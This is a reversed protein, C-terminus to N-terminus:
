ADVDGTLALHFKDPTGPLPSESPQVCCLAWLGENAATTNFRLLNGSVWGAGWGALPITFYPQGTAPNIPAIESTISLGTAIQGVTEGIVNVVTAATFQIRWRETIAGDNTVVFPYVTDNFQPTIESGILSDSWVSTWAQQSFPDTYAAQQDGLPALTSVRTAGAPFANRLPHDLEIQNQDMDVSIVVAEEMISHWASLPQAYASVDLPTAMTVVGNILDATYLATPLRLGGNDELWIEDVQDRSLTYQAGATVPNPLVDALPHHLRVGDGPRAIPFARNKPIRLWDVSDSFAPTIASPATYRYLAQLSATTVTNTFTLTVTGAPYDVTGTVGTGTIAGASDDAGSAPSGSVSELAQATLFGPTLDPPLPLTFDTGTAQTDYEWLINGLASLTQYRVQISARRLDTAFTLALAGTGYNITGTIDTGSIVGSGNDSASRTAADPDTQGTVTLSGPVIAGDAVSLTVSYSSVPAYDDGLVRTLTTLSTYTLRISNSYVLETFTLSATQDLSIAGSMDTGSIVGGADTTGYIMAGDSVRKAAVTLSEVSSIHAVSLSATLTTATAAGQGQVLRTALSNASLTLTSLDMAAGFSVDVEGAGYDVTGTVNTTALGGVGDDTATRYAGGSSETARLTVSGAVIAAGFRVAIATTTTVSPTPTHTRGVLRMPSAPLLATISTGTVTFQSPNTAGSLTFWANGQPYRVTIDALDPMPDLTASQWRSNVPAVALTVPTAETSGQYSGEFIQMLTPAIPVDLADVTIRYDDQAAPITLTTVGYVGYQMAIERTTYIQTPTVYDTADDYGGQFTVVLVPAISLSVQYFWNTGNNVMQYAAETIRVYQQTAGDELCLIADVPFHQRCYTYFSQYPTIAATQDSFGYLTLYADGAYYTQYLRFNTNLNKQIVYLKEIAQARTDAYSGTKFLAYTVDADTPLSDLYARAALLPEADTNYAGAFFKRLFTRGAIRDGSAIDPFVANDVGDIVRNGSPLGGGDDADTMRESAYVHLDLALLTM